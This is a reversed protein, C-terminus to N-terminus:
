HFTLFYNFFCNFVKIFRNLRKPRACQKKTNERRTKQTSRSHLYTNRRKFLIDIYIHVTSIRSYHIEM